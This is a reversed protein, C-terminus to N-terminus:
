LGGDFHRWGIGVPCFFSTHEDYWGGADMLFRQTGMRM